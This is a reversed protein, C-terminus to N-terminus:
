LAPEYRHRHALTLLPREVAFWSTTAVIATIVLATATVAIDARGLMHPPRGRLIAWTLGSVGQHVIYISYSVIGIAGLVRWRMVRLLLGDRSTIVIMLLMAYWIAILSL